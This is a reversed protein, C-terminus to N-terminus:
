FHHPTFIFFAGVIWLFRLSKKLQEVHVREQLYVVSFNVIAMALLVIGMVSVIRFERALTASPVIDYLFGAWAWVAASATMIGMARGLREQWASLFIFVTILTALFSTLGIGITQVDIQTLSLYM